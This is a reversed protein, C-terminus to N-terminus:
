QEIQLWVWLLDDTMGEACAHYHIKLDSALGSLRPELYILDLYDLNCQLPFYQFQYYIHGKQAVM